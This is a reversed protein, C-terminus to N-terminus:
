SSLTQDHDSFWSHLIAGEQANLSVDVSQAPSILSFQLGLIALPSCGLRYFSIQSEPSDPSQEDSPIIAVSFWHGKM